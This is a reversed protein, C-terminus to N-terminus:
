VRGKKRINTRPESAAFVEAGFVLELLKDPSAAM